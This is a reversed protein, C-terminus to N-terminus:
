KNKQKTQTDEEAFDTKDQDEIGFKDFGILQLDINHRKSTIEKFDRILDIIENSMTHTKKASIVVKSDDPIQQLTQMIGGKNLFSVIQAFSIITRDEGFSAIFALEYNQRLIFFMAVAFGIGIGLLLNTM